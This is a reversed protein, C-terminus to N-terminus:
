PSVISPRIVDFRWIEVSYGDIDKTEVYHTTGKLVYSDDEKCAEPIKLCPEDIFELCTERFELRPSIGKVVRSLYEYQQYGTCRLKTLDEYPLCMYEPHDRMKNKKESLIFPDCFVFVPAVYCYKGDGCLVWPRHKYEWASCSLNYVVLVRQDRLSLDIDKSSFVWQSDGQVAFYNPYYKGRITFNGSKPNELFEETTMRPFSAYEEASVPCSWKLVSALGERQARWTLQYALDQAPEIDVAEVKIDGKPIVKIPKSVCSLLAFAFVITIYRM